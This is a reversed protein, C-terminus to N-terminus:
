IVIVKTADLILHLLTKVDLEGGSFSRMEKLLIILDAGEMVSDNSLLAPHIVAPSQRLLFLASTM